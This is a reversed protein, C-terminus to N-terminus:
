IAGYYMGHLHTDVKWFKENMANSLRIEVRNILTIIVLLENM